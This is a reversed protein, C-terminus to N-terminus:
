GRIEFSDKPKKKTPFFFFKNKRNKKGKEIIKIRLPKQFRILSFNRAFEFAKKTKLNFGLFIVSCFGFYIIM